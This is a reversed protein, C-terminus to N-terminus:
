KAINKEQVEFSYQIFYIPIWGPSFIDVLSM